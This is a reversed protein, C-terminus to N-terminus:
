QWIRFCSCLPLIDNGWCSILPDFCPGVSDDGVWHVLENLICFWTFRGRYHLPLLVPLGKQLSDYLRLFTCPEWLSPGSVVVWGMLSTCNWLLRIQCRCCGVVVNLLLLCTIKSPWLYIWALIIEPINSTQLFYYPVSNRWVGGCWSDATVTFCMDGGWLLHCYTHM